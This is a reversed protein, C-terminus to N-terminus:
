VSARAYFRAANDWLLKRKRERDMVWDAVLPVSERLPKLWASLGVRVDARSRRGSRHRRKDAQRGGPDRHEPFLARRHRIREAQSRTGPTRGQAKPTHCNAPASAQTDVGRPKSAAPAAANDDRGPLRATEFWNRLDSPLPASDIQRVALRRTPSMQAGARALGIMGSMRAGSAKGAQGHVRNVRDSSDNVTRPTNKLQPGCM